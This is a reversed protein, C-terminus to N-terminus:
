AFGCSPTLSPSVFNSPKGQFLVSSWIATWNWFLSIEVGVFRSTSLLMALIYSGRPTTEGIDSTPFINYLSIQSRLIGHSLCSGESRIAFYNTHCLSNGSLTSNGLLKTLKRSSILSMLSCANPSALPLPTAAATNATISCGDPTLWPRTAAFDRRALSCNLIGLCSSTDAWMAHLQTCM